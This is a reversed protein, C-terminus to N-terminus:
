GGRPGTTLFVAPFEWLKTRSWEERLQDMKAVETLFLPCFAAHSVVQPLYGTGQDAIVVPM